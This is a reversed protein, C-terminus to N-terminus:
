APGSTRDGTPQTTAPELGAVTEVVSRSIEQATLGCDQLVDGRAAHDLFRTPLGFIRVPTAVEADSMAQLLTAGVGGQRLGDEITVVQRYAATLQVLQPDVPKVWRPDVVTVGIGQATLRQGVDLACATMPGVGVLLVDLDSDRRLVDYSGVRETAVLDASVAGKPYRIMTPGDAVDVAERLQERLQRGDRPVAIRLGPVTQFVALDWMGNHSPGDNGTIGARDLVFTVPARHLAVDMLVQDYARNMFTAYVSVVPHMGGMALGAASTTAHQEAIGVDFVRDPFRAAFSTLGVPHLMAATIAVIDLREEGLRVLEEEFIGGM